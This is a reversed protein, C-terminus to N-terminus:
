ERRSVLSEKFYLIRRVSRSTHILDVVMKLSVVLFSGHVIFDKVLFATSFTDIDCGMAQCMIVNPASAQAWGKKRKM